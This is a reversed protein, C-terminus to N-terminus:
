LHDIPTTSRKQCGCTNNDKNLKIYSGQSGDKYQTKAICKNKKNTQKTPLNGKNLFEQGTQHSLGPPRILPDKLRGIPVWIQAQQKQAQTQMSTAKQKGKKTIVIHQTSPTTSGIPVFPQSVYRDEQKFHIANTDWNPLFRQIEEAM